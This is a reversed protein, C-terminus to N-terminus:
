NHLAVSPQPMESVELSLDLSPCELCLFLLYLPGSWPCKWRLSAQSSLVTVSPSFVLLPTLAPLSLRRHLTLLWSGLLSKTRHCLSAAPLSSAFSHHLSCHCPARWFWRSNRSWRMQNNKHILFSTSTGLVYLRIGWSGESGQRPGDSPSKECFPKLEKEQGM